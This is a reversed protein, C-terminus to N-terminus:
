SATRELEALRREWEPIEEEPGAELGLETQGSVVAQRRIRELLEEKTAANVKLREVLQDIENQFERVTIELRHMVQELLAEGYGENIQDVLTGLKEELHAARDQHTSPEGNM